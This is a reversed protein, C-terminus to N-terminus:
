MSRMMFEAIRRDAENESNALGAVVGQRDAEPRNQSLKYKGDISEIALRVGVIAKLMRAIYDAPADTVQWSTGSRREHRETLRSVLAKLQNPEEFTELRGRAYIAVYNWTPVVRPDTRKTPYWSPSVYADPGMFIAVAPKSLDSTKWQPNARALHGTLMGMPGVHRDLVLPLHSVIPGEDNQTVLTALGAADIRDHLRATDTERFAAPTYSM